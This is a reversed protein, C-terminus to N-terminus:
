SVWKVTGNQPKKMQQDIMGQVLARQAPELKLQSIDATQPTISLKDDAYAYTGTAKVPGQPTDAQVSLNGGDAFTVISNGPSQSWMGVVSKGHKCGLAVVLLLLPAFRLIKM